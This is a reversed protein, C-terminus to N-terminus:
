PPVVEDGNAENHLVSPVNTMSTARGRFKMGERREEVREGGRNRLVTVAPTRRGPAAGGDGDGLLLGQRLEGTREGEREGVRRM